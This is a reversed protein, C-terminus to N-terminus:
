RGPPRNYASMARQGTGLKQLEAGLSEHQANLDRRLQEIDDILAILGPKLSQADTAGLGQISQCLTGVRRDLGTLEVARGDGLIARSAAILGAIAQLEARISAIGITM